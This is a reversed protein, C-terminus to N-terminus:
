TCQTRLAALVSMPGRRFSPCGLLREQLQDDQASAKPIFPSVQSLASTHPSPHPLPVGPLASYPACSCLLPVWHRPASASNVQCFFPAPCSTLQSTAPPAQAGCPRLAPMMRSALGETEPGQLVNARFLFFPILTHTTFHTISLNSFHWTFLLTLM